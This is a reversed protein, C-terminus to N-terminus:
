LYVGEPLPGERDKPERRGRCVHCQYTVTDSTVTDTQRDTKRGAHVYMHVLTRTPTDPQYKHLNPPKPGSSPPRADTPRHGTHNHTGPGPQPPTRTPTDVHRGGGKRYIRGQNRLKRTPDGGPRRYKKISIKGAKKEAAMSEERSTTGCAARAIDDAAGCHRRAAGCARAARERVARKDVAAAASDAGAAKSSSSVSPM